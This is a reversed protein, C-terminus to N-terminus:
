PKRGMVLNVDRVFQVLGQLLLLAIGIAIVTRFPAAPPYWYSEM